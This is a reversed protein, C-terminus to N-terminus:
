KEKMKKIKKFELEFEDVSQCINLASEFIKLRAIEKDNSQWKYRLFLTFGIGM